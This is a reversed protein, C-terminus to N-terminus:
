LGSKEIGWKQARAEMVTGTTMIMRMRPQFAKAALM